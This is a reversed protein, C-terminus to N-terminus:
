DKVANARSERGRILDEEDQAERFISQVEISPDAM